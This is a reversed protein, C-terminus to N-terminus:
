SGIRFGAKPKPKNKPKYQIRRPRTPSIKSEPSKPVLDTNTDEEVKAAQAPKKSDNSNGITDDRQHKEEIVSSPESLKVPSERAKSILQQEVKPPQIPLKPQTSKANLLATDLKRPNEFLTLSDAKPWCNALDFNRVWRLLQLSLSLSIDSMM